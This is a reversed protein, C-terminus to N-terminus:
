LDDVFVTVLEVFSRMSEPSTLSHNACELVQSLHHTNAGIASTWRTLLDQKDIHAPVCEDSGGIVILVPRGAARLGVFADAVQQETLDSSFFDEKGQGAPAILSIWRDASIPVLSRGNSVVDIVYRPLPYGGDGADRQQQATVLSKQLLDAPVEDVWIERDSVPAQLISASFTTDPHSNFFHVIDQCGAPSRM